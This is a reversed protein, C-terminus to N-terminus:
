QFQCDHWQCWHPSSVHIWPFVTIWQVFLSFFTTIRDRKVTHRRPVKACVALPRNLTLKKSAKEIFIIISLDADPSAPQPNKILITNILLDLTFLSTYWVYWQSSVYFTTYTHVIRNNTSVLSIGTVSISIWFIFSLGFYLPTGNYHSGISWSIVYSVGIIAVSHLDSELSVVCLGYKARM